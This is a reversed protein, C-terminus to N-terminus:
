GSGLKPRKVVFLTISSAKREPGRAVVRILPRNPRLVDWAVVKSNQIPAKEVQGIQDFPVEKGPRLFGVLYTIREKEDAKVLVSSFDTKALQWLVKRERENPEGAEKEDAARHAPDCLPDLKAHAAEVSSDLEVGLIDTQM